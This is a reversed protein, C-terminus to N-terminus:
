LRPRKYYPRGKHDGTEEYGMGKYGMREDNMQDDGMKRESMGEEDQQETTGGVGERTTAKDRHKQAPSDTAARAKAVGQAADRRKALLPPMTM